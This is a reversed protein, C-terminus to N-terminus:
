VPSIEDKILKQEKDIDIAKLEEHTEVCSCAPEPHERKWRIDQAILQRELCFLCISYGIYGFLNVGLVIDIMIQPDPIVFCLCLLLYSCARTFGYIVAYVSLHEMSHSHMSLIRIVSTKRMDTITTIFLRFFYYVGYFILVTTLCPKVFVPIAAAIIFGLSVFIFWQALNKHYTKMFIFMAVLQAGTFISQVLGITFDNGASQMFVLITLVTAILDFCLGRFFCSLYITRLPKTEEGGNRVIKLFNLINYTKKPGPKAKIFCSFVFILICVVALIICIAPFSESIISGLVLPFVTKTLFILINKVSFYITQNKSSVSEVVLANFSSYFLGHAIGMGIGLLWIWNTFSDGILFVVIFLGSLLLAGLSMFLSKSFKLIIPTFILTSLAILMYYLFNFIAVGSYNGPNMNLIKSVFFTDLFIMIISILCECVIISSTSLTFIGAKGKKM